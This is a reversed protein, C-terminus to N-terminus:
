SAENEEPDCIRCRLQQDTITTSIKRGDAAKVIVNENPIPFDPGPLEPCETKMEVARGDAYDISMTLNAGLHHVVRGSGDPRELEDFKAMVEKDEICGIVYDMRHELRYSQLLSFISDDACGLHDLSVIITCVLVDFEDDLDYRDKLTSTM